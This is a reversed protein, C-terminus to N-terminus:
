QPATMKALMQTLTDNFKELHGNTQPHYPSTHQHKIGFRRLLNQILYGMFEEGNDTLLTVPKGYTTMIYRLLDVVVQQSRHPIAQAITWDSGLDMAMLIYQNGRKTTPLPRIFDFAWADVIDIRAIPHLLQLATLERKAFQCPDCTRIVDEVIEQGYPIHYRTRLAKMMTQVGLHGLDCHLQRIVEDAETLSTPVEVDIKAGWQNQIRRYLTDGMLLYTGNGVTRMDEGSQIRKKYGKYIEFIEACSKKKKKPGMVGAFLPKLM